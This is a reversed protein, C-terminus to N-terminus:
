PSEAALEDRLLLLKSARPTRRLGERVRAEAQELRGARREARVLRVVAVPRLREAEAIWGLLEEARDLQGAELRLAALRWVAEPSSGRRQMAERYLREAQESEGRAEAIRGLVMLPYGNAPGAPGRGPAPRHGRRRTGAGRVGRGPQSARREAFGFEGAARRLGINDDYRDFGRALGYQRDLVISGLFAATPWGAAHLGEQLLPLDKELRFTGNNHVGHRPPDMGTLLTAHSPLTLPTPSIATEFRM